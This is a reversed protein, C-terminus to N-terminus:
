GEHWLRAFDALEQANLDSVAWFAMGNRRWRVFDYGSGTGASAASDGGGSDPWVFVDIIHQRRQYVLAAVPRGGLYDLRGGILPFGDARFDRM